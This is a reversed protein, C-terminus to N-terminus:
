FKVWLRYNVKLNKGKLAEVAMIWSNAEEKAMPEKVDYRHKSKPRGSFGGEPLECSSLNAIVENVNLGEVYNLWKLIMVTHFASTVTFSSGRWCDRVKKVMARRVGEPVRLDLSSLVRLAYYIPELPSSYGFDESGYM